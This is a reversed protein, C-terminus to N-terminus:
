LAIKYCKVYRDFSSRSIKLLKIAGSPDGGSAMIAKEILMKNLENQNVHLDFTIAHFNLYVDKELVVSVTFVLDDNSIPKKLIKCVNQSMRVDTSVDYGTCIIIPINPYKSVLVRILDNGTMYPMRIDTVICHTDYKTLIKLADYANTATHVYLDPIGMGLCKKFAALTERNDDILLLTSM